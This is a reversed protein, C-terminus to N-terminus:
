DKPNLEKEWQKRQRVAKRKAKESSGPEKPDYPFNRHHLTGDRMIHARWAFWGRREQHCVGLVGSRNNIQAHTPIRASRDIVGFRDGLLEPGVEDRWARAVALAKRMSGYKALSFWRHNKRDPGLRVWYGVCQPHIVETIYHFNRRISEKRLGM